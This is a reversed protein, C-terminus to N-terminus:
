TSHLYQNEIRIWTFINVSCQILDDTLSWHKMRLLCICEITANTPFLHWLEWIWPSPDEWQILSWTDLFCHRRSANVASQHLDNCYDLRPASTFIKRLDCACGEQYIRANSTILFHIPKTQSTLLYLQKMTKIVSNSIWALLQLLVALALLHIFM